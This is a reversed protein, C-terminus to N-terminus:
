QPLYMEAIERCHIYKKISNRIVEAWDVEPYASMEKELEADISVTLERVL